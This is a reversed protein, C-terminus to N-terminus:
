DPEYLDLFRDRPVSHGSIEVTDENIALVIGTFPFGKPLAGFQDTKVIVYYGVAALREHLYALQAESVHDGQADELWMEYTTTPVGDATMCSGVRGKVMLRELQTGEAM